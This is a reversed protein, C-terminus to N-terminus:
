RSLIADQIALHLSCANSDRPVAVGIGNAVWDAKSALYAQLLKAGLAGAELGDASGMDSAFELVGPLEALRMQSGYERILTQLDFDIHDLRFKYGGIAAEESVMEWSYADYTLVENMRILRAVNQFQELTTTRRYARHATALTAPTVRDEVALQCALFRLTLITQLRRVEVDDAEARLRRQRM